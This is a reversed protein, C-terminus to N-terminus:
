VALPFLGVVLFTVLATVLMFHWYLVVNHIDIDYEHTLRGAFSGAICYAQMILAVAGHTVAWIVVIWVIAPYVHETPDMDFSWPGYLGALGGAITLAMSAALWGRLGAPSAAANARRALLMAVWALTFLLAAAVPWLVGPGAIGNTFDEHITWYFFYGFVLSGFATGDGVMTIFMAWWGVSKPGSVYIPLKLGLGVDKERKEPIIATGTWLWYLIGGLCLVGSALTLWWWHFTLFIFVGGLSFASFITIYAPGSVRLCQVPEASLVSTVMTEREGEEADALYYRGADVDAMLNPQDWLPYRSRIIPVSRIGWDEGPMEALWEMTGANWPNRPSLPVKKKPRVIDWAIVLVGAAFVFAGVTSVMNLVTIGLEEPYTFVRRPMGRLGALHMPFFAVNFGVFMLWFAIKGLRDSLKKSAVLPFFYYIGAVIPFLVGGIIVYHLHAVIFYTDHAQWDFPALAIM